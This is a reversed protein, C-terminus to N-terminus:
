YCVELLLLTFGRRSSARVSSVGRVIREICYCITPSKPNVLTITTQSKTAEEDWKKLNNSDDKGGGTTATSPPNIQEERLVNCINRIGEIRRNEQNESLLWFSDIVVQNVKRHIHAKKSSKNSAM